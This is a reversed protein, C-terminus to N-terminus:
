GCESKIEKDQIKNIHVESEVWIEAYECCALERGVYM